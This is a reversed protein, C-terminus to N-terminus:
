FRAIIVRNFGGGEYGMDENLIAFSERSTNWDKHVVFDIRGM